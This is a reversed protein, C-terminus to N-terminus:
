PEEADFESPTDDTEIYIDECVSQALRLVAKAMTYREAEIQRAAYESARFMIQYMRRYDAAM